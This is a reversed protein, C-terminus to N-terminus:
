KLIGAKNSEDEPEEEEKDEGLKVAQKKRQKALYEEVMCRYTLSIRRKRKYEVGGFMDYSEGGIGHKWIYRSDGTLILLSRRELMVSKKERTNPNSMEVICSSLLSLSCVVDGFCYTKDTHSHIGQGVMYENVILQDPLVDFVGREVSRSRLFELWTPMPPTPTSLKVHQTQHNFTYGYQLVRRKLDTAWEEKELHDVMSQEEELSVFDRIYRLGPITAVLKEIQTHLPVHSSDAKM